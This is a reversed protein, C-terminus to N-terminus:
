IRKVRVNLRLFNGYHTCQNGGERGGWFFEFSSKRLLRGRKLQKKKKKKPPPPIKGQFGGVGNKGLLFLQIQFNEIKCFTKAHTLNTRTQPPHSILTEMVGNKFALLVQVHALIICFNRFM